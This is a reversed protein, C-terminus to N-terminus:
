VDGFRALAERLERATLTENHSWSAQLHLSAAEAVAILAEVGDRLEVMGEETIAQRATPLIGALRRLHRTSYMAATGAPQHLGM